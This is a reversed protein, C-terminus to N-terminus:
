GFRVYQGSGKLLAAADFGPNETTKDLNSAIQKNRDFEVCKHGRTSALDALEKDKPESKKPPVHRPPPKMTTSSGGSSSPQPATTQVPVATAQEPGNVQQNAFDYSEGRKTLNKDIMEALNIDRELFKRQLAWQSQAQQVTVVKAKLDTRIKAFQRGRCANLASFAQNVKDLQANEQQLDNKVSLIAQDKNQELKHQWYGAAAGAIGGTVAGIAAAKGVDKGGSVLAGFLAGGAAGIVAGKVMDEAFFNGTSDLAVVNARCADDGNDDGIRGSQTLPTACSTLLFCAAVVAVLSKKIDGNKAYM